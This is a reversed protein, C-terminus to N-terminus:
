TNLGIINGKFPKSVTKSIHFNQAGILIKRIEPMESLVSIFFM